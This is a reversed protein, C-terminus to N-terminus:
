ADNFMEMLASDIAFFLARTAPDNVVNMQEFELLRDARLLTFVDSGNVPVQVVKESMNFGVLVTALTANIEGTSTFIKRLFDLRILHAFMEDARIEKRCVGKRCEPVRYTM